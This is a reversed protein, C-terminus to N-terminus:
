NTKISFSINETTRVIGHGHCSNCRKQFTTGTGNCTQCSVKQIIPGIRMTSMGTGNCSACISPNEGGVGDCALCKSNRAFTINKSVGRKMQSLSIRLDFMIDDDTQQRPKNPTKTRGFLDGFIDQFMDGFGQNPSNQSYRYEQRKQANEILSYAENIKKFKEENGGRDPHHKAALKRYAKKIEADSSNESVNLTKFPDM